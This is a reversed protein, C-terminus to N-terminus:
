EAKGGTAQVFRAYEGALRERDKGLWYVRRLLGRASAAYRGAPYNKLYAKFASEADDLM